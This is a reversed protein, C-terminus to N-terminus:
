SLDNITGSRLQELRVVGLYSGLVAGDAYADGTAEVSASFVLADLQPWYDAGSFTAEFGQVVPLRVDYREIRSLTEREGRMYAVVEGLDARFILNPGSNGRNLFFVQDGAM